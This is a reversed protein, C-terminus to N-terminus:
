GFGPAHDPRLQMHSAEDTGIFGHRVYVREARANGPAVELRVSALKKGVAWEIAARILVDAAGSGRADPAVWMAFLDATDADQASGIGVMGIPEDALWAGFIAGGRSPWARWQADDRAVTEEYTSSFASPSDLLAALRLRRRLEWDDPGLERVVISVGGGRRRTRRRTPM